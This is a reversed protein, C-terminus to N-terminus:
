ERRFRRIFENLNIGIGFFNPKLDIIDNGARKWDRQDSFNDLFESNGFKAFKSLSRFFSELDGFREEANRLPILLRLSDERIRDPHSDTLLLAPLHKFLDDYSKGLYKRCIETSWLNEEFGKAIVSRAGIQQAINSFNKELIEYRGGHWNGNVVFIYLDVDNEIPLNGLSTLQYGMKKRVYLKIM